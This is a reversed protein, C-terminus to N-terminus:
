QNINYISNTLYYRICKYMAFFVKLDKMIVRNCILNIELYVPM